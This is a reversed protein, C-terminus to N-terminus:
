AGRRMWHTIHRLKAGFSTVNSLKGLMHDLLLGEGLCVGAHNPVRAGICMLYFDGPQAEIRMRERDQTIQRFGQKEFNDLYLSGNTDTDDWWKWARPSDPLSRGQLAEWDQLLTYCDCVGPLFERQIHQGADDFLPPRPTGWHCALASTEDGPVMIAWPVATAQQGRMDQLSPYWPGGPHSHIIGELANDIIAQNVEDGRMEFHLDKDAAANAVPVFQGNTVIGCREEETGAFYKGAANLVSRTFPEMPQRFYDPATTM